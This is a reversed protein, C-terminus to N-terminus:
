RRTDREVRAQLVVEGQLIRDVVDQGSVVHGFVTYRGDLHPQASHTVFYQVGETDKGASAVGAAGTAFRARTLESRIPVDPGGYGDRRFFDGGQVVFNSVVRHFPVGDYRDGAAALAITQVTQPAGETDIELVVRGRATELM